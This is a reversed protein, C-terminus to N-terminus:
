SSFTARPLPAGPTQEAISKAHSRHRESRPDYEM